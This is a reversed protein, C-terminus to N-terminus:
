REESVAAVALIWVTRGRRGVPFGVRRILCQRSAKGRKWLSLFRTNTYRKVSPALLHAPLAISYPLPAANECPPPSAQQDM